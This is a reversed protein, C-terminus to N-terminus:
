PTGGKPGVVAARRNAVRALGSELLLAIAGVALFWQYRDYKLKRERLQIEGRRLSQLYERTLQGLDYARNRAPVYLGQSAEAIKELVPEELRVWVEKGEDRVFGEEEERPIRAGEKPDGIGVTILRVNAERAEKAAALPNSDQDGGDSLLVIVRDRDSAPGFAEITRRIADGIRSGGLAVSRPDVFSLEQLLAEHDTTLPIRISPNGAFLVLGVRDAPIAAVLDRIDIKARELRSPTVDAALMSRSVDLLIFLDLAPQKVQEDYEGFRPRAAALITAACGVLLLLSRWMPLRLPVPPALRRYMPEDLFGRGGTSAWRHTRYLLLLLAPLIGLAALAMPRDWLIGLYSM